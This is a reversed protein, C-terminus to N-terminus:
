KGQIVRAAIETEPRRLSQVILPWGEGNSAIVPAGNLLWGKCLMETVREEFGEPECHKIEAIM